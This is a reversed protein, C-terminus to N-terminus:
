KLRQLASLADADYRGATVPDIYDHEADPEREGIPPGSNVPHDLDFPLPAGPLVTAVIGANGCEECPADWRGGHGGCAECIETVVQWGGATCQDGQGRERTTHFEIVDDCRGELWVMRSCSPCSIKM